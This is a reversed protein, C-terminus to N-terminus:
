SYTRRNEPPAGPYFYNDATTGYIGSGAKVSFCSVRGIEQVLFEPTLASSYDWGIKSQKESDVYM